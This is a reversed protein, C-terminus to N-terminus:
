WCSKHFGEVKLLPEVKGQQYGRLCLFPVHPRSFHACWRNEEKLWTPIHRGQRHRNLRIFYRWPNKLGSLFISQLCIFPFDTCPAGAHALSFKRYRFCDAKNRRSLARLPPSAHAAKWIPLVMTDCEQQCSSRIPPAGGWGHSFLHITYNESSSSKVAVDQLLGKYKKSVKHKM